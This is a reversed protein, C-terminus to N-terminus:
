PTIVSRIQPKNESISMLIFSSMTKILVINNYNKINMIFIQERLALKTTKRICVDTM